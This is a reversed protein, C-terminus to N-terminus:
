IIEELSIKFRRGLTTTLVIGQDSEEDRYRVRDLCFGGHSDRLEADLMDFIERTLEQTTSDYNTPRAITM